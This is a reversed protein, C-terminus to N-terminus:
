ASAQVRRMPAARGLTLSRWLWEFPGYRFRALWLPSWLLQLLWVVAVVAWLQAHDLRAYLGPGRGGYFLATMLLSQTLYNTFAMRGVPALARAVGGRGGRLALILAAVYGLTALPAGLVNILDGRTTTAPAFGSAIEGAILGGQLALYSAGAAMLALYVGTPARGSLVGAKFLGLGILMLPSLTIAAPLYATPLLKLWDRLNAQLSDLFGGRYGGGAALAAAAERELETVDLLGRPDALAALSLLGLSLHVAVGVTLLTRASWSRAFLVLGGALAYTLLIDGYWILAGHIIGFAGLWFLRRRLRAGAAADSREGGVLFVSVGFLMSFLSYFKGEFLVRTSAWALTDLGPAPPHLAPVLSWASPMAFAAANVALIGLLAFGRLVDLQPIREAETPTM